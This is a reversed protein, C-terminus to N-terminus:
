SSTGRHSRVWATFQAAPLARLTFDMYAHDLGCYEACEGRYSGPKIGSLDFVNPHGPIADRKFLFDPVYFAHDVDSATLLVETTREAPVVLTPNRQSTGVVTIGYQPYHFRWQWQFATVDVRLAPDASVADVHKETNYTAVFLGAVLLFPIVVYAIELPIHYRFQPPMRDEDRKRRRWRLISFLILGYVLAGVPIAAYFLLHYLDSIRRGQTDDGPPAGFRCATFALLPLAAILRRVTGRRSTRSEGL